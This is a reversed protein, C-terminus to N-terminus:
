ILNLFVHGQRRHAGEHEGTRSFIFVLGRIVLFETREDTLLTNPTRSISRELAADSQASSTNTVAKLPALAAAASLVGQGGDHKVPFMEAVPAPDGDVAVGIGMIGEPLLRILNVPAVTVSGVTDQVTWGISM